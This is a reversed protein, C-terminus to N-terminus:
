PPPAPSSYGPSAVAACIQPATAEAEDRPVGAMRLVTAISMPTVDGTVVLAEIDAVLKLLEPPDLAWHEVCLHSVYSEWRPHVM